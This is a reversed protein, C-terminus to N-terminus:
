MKQGFVMKDVSMQNVCVAEFSVLILPWIQTSWVTYLDFTQRGL